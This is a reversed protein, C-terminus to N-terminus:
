LIDVDGIEKWPKQHKEWSKRSNNGNSRDHKSPKTQEWALDYYKDVRQSEKLKM